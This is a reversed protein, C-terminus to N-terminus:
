GEQAQRQLIRRWKRNTRCIEQQIGNRIKEIAKVGRTSHRYCALHVQVGNSAPTIIVYIVFHGEMPLLQTNEQGHLADLIVQPMTANPESEDVFSSVPLPARERIEVTAEPLGNATFKTTTGTAIQWGGPASECFAVMRQVVETVAATANAVDLPVLFSDNSHSMHAAPAAGVPRELTWALFWRTYQGPGYETAQVHSPGLLHVLLKQLTIFSTKKGLMCSFWLSSDRARLSDAIMDLVFGVEGNPYSGESTTMPTRARGDGVRPTEHEMSNPDYFPPNTMVFDLRVPRNMGQLARSLPGGPPTSPDQSHSPPVAVLHIRDNLQNANANSQALELAQADVETGVMQYHFVRAALLPYICTAGVGLDMGWKTRAKDHLLVTDIWHLYFFRNPVPPCLHHNPLHPLRLEFHAHLLGQTLAISFEQTVCSSFTAKGKTDHQKQQVDKWTECFEPYRRALEEFNPTEILKLLELNNPRTVTASSPHRRKRSSSKDEEM